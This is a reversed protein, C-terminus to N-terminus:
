FGWTSGRILKIGYSLVSFAIGIGILPLLAVLAGEDDVIATVCNGLMTLISTLATSIASLM